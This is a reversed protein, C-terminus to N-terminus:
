FFYEEYMNCVYKFIAKPSLRTKGEKKIIRLFFNGESFGLRQNDHKQINRNKPKNM